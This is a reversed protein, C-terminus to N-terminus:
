PQEKKEIAIKELESMDSGLDKAGAPYGNFELIYAVIDSVTQADLSDPRTPPMNNQITQAREGITKGVWDFTFNPGTLSPAEPTTSVLADGHCVACNAAYLDKGRSAQDKSYVGKLIPSDSPEQTRVAASGGALLLGIVAAYKKM